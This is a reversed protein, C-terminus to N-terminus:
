APMRPISALLKQMYAHRPVALIGSEGSEVIRGREVIITEECPSAVLSIDHSVLAM